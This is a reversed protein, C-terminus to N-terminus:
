VKKVYLLSQYPVYDGKNYMIMPYCETIQFGAREFFKMASPNGDHVSAALADIHRTKAHDFLANVLKAGIQQNRFAKTIGIHLHGEHSHFSQKRWAFLRPWNRVMGAMIGWFQRKFFVGNCFAKWLAKPILIWTMALGYRRNDFCGMVYGAIVGDKEAVFVSQPEYDTYYACLLDTISERDPFFDEVPEGKDATDACIDRVSQRDAPAFSRIIVNSM